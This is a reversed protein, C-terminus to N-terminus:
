IAAAHCAQVDCATRPSLSGVSANLSVFLYFRRASGTRAANIVLGRDIFIMRGSESTFCVLGAEGEKRPPPPPRAVGGGEVQSRRKILLHLFASNVEGAGPAAEPGSSRTRGSRQPAALSPTWREDRSYYGPSPLILYIFLAAKQTRPRAIKTPVVWNPLEPVAPSTAATAATILDADGPGLSGLRQM